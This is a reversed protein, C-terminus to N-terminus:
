LSLKIGMCFGVGNMRLIAKGGTTNFVDFDSGIRFGSLDHVGDTTILYFLNGRYNITSDELDEVYYSGKGLWNKFEAYRLRGEMFVSLKKFIKLEFVGGLHTGFCNVKSEEYGILNALNHPRSTWQWDETYKGLYIGIGFKISIRIRPKDLAEYYLNFLIPRASFNFNWDGYYNPDHLLAKFDRSIKGTEVGFGFKGLYFGLEGSLETFYSPGSTLAFDPNNNSNLDIMHGYDGSNLLNLGGNLKVFFGKKKPGTMFLPKIKKITKEVKEEVTGTEKGEEPEEFRERTLGQPAIVKVWKEVGPALYLSNDKIRISYLFTYLNSDELAPFSSENLKEKDSLSMLYYVRQMKKANDGTFLAEQIETPLFFSFVYLYNLKGDDLTALQHLFEEPSQDLDKKALQCWFEKAAIGGPLALSGKDTVRLGDSLVFMGMLFKKDQYIRKWAALPQTEDFTSIYNIERDSLRYLVGLLLSFRENKLLTEFFNLKTIKLGSIEGLFNFDWPVPIESETIKLHLRNTKNLQREIVDTRLLSFRFYDFGGVAPNPAVRYKGGETKSIRLGMLGLVITARRYGDNDTLNITIINDKTAKFRRLSRKIVRHWRVIKLLKNRMGRGLVIEDPKEMFLLRDNLFYFFDESPSNYFFNTFTSIQYLDGPVIATEGNLPVLTFLILM